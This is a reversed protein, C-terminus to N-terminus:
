WFARAMYRLLSNRLRWCPSHEMAFAGDGVVAVLLLHHNVSGDGVFLEDVVGEFSKVLVILVDSCVHVFVIRM